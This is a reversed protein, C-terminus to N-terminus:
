ALLRRCDRDDGPTLEPLICSAKCDRYYVGANYYQINYWDILDGVEQHVKRYGGSPYKAITTFYAAM